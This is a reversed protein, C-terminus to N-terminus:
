RSARKTVIGEAGMQRGALTRLQFRGDERFLWTELYSVARADGLLESSPKPLLGAKRVSEVATRELDKFGNSRHVAVDVPRGEEDVTIKLVVVSKLLPPLEGGFTRKPQAAYIREAVARKYAHLAANHPAPKARVVRPGTQAPTEQTAKRPEETTACGTLIALIVLAARLRESHRMLTELM